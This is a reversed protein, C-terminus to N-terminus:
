YSKSRVQDRLVRKLIKGSGTRPIEDTFGVQRPIKYGALHKRAYAVVDAAELPEGPKAVVLAYVSEGWEEDPVGFVAVDLIAPHHELAAEIEAPYINM